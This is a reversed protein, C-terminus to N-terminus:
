LINNECVNICVDCRICYILFYFEDGFWFSRIGNSVKRWRGIFIGRRFVDIKM